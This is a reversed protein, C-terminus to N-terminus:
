MGGARLALAVHMCFGFAFFLIMVDLVTSEDTLLPDSM